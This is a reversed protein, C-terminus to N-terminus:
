LLPESLGGNNSRNDDNNSNNPSQNQSNPTEEDGGGGGGLLDPFVQEMTTPMDNMAVIGTPQEESSEFIFENLTAYTQPEDETSANRRRCWRCDLLERPNLSCALCILASAFLGIVLAILVITEESIRITMIIYCNKRKLIRNM